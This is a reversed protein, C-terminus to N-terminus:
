AVRFVRYVGRTGSLRYECLTSEEVGLDLPRKEGKLPIAYSAVYVNGEELDGGFVNEDTGPKLIRFKM